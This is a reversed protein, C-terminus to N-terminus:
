WTLPVQREAEMVPPSRGLEAEVRLPSSAAGSGKTSNKNGGKNGGNTRHLVTAVHELLQEVLQRDRLPVAMAAETNSYEQLEALAQLLWLLQILLSDQRLSNHWM